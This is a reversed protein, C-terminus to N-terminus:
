LRTDYNFAVEGSTRDDVCASSPLRTRKKRTPQSSTGPESAQWSGGTPQNAKNPLWTRRSICMNKGSISTMSQQLSSGIGLSAPTTSPCRTALLCLCM